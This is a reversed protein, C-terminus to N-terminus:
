MPVTGGGVVGAGAGALSTALWLFGAIVAVGVMPVWDERETWEGDDRNPEWRGGRGEDDAAAWGDHRDRWDDGPGGSASAASSSARRRGARRGDRGGPASRAASFPDLPDYFSADVGAGGRAGANWAAYADEGRRDYEGAGDNVADCDDRRRPSPRVRVLPATPPRVKRVRGPWARGGAAAMASPASHGPVRAGAAVSAAAAAAARAEPPDEEWRARDLANGDPVAGAAAIWSDLIAEMAARPDGWGGASAAERPLPYVKVTHCAAPVRRGHLPLRPRLSKAYGVYRLRARADFIAYAGTGALLDPASLCPPGIGIQQSLTRLSACGHLVGPM